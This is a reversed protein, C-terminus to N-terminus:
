LTLVKVQNVVRNHNLEKGPEVVLAAEFEAEPVAALEQSRSNEKKTIGVSALTPPADPLPERKSGKSGGGKRHAATRKPRDKLM